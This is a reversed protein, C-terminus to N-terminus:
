SPKSELVGESHREVGAFFSQAEEDTMILRSRLKKPKVAKSIRGSGNTTIELTEIYREIEKPRFRMQRGLAPIYTIAIKNAQIKRRLTRVNMGLYEAFQLDTILKEM